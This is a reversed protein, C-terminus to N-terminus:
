WHLECKGTAGKFEWRLEYRSGADLAIRAAPFQQNLRMVQRNGDLLIVEADGMSLQADLTFECTGSKRFRGVYQIWGTCSDLTAKDADKGRRFVFMIAAISKTAAISRFYQWIKM